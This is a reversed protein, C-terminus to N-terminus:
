QLEAALGDLAKEGVKKLAGGMFPVAFRLLGKFELDATYDIRTGDGDPTFRIEDVATLSDGVGEIVVRSDPELLKITYLMPVQRGGFKVMLTFASGVKLPGSDVRSAAVVGPDWEASSAFDAVYAFVESLPRPVTRTEILKPM